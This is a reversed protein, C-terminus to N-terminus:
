LLVCGPKKKVPKDGLVPGSGGAYPTKARLAATAIQVFAENVGAGSKASTEAYPVTLGDAFERAVTTPVVRASEMDTKNGVLMKVVSPPAYRAIEQMWLKVNNYSAQDTIDYVVVVGHSGRYFSSTITRFREQGATDWIQLQITKGDITVNKSKFDVSTMNIPGDPFHNDVFRLLLCSKGVASDGILLVKIVQDGM